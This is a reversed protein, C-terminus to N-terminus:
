KPNGSKKDPFFTDFIREKSYLEEDAFRLTQISITADFHEIVNDYTFPAITFQVDLFSSMSGMIMGNSRRGQGRGGLSAGAYKYFYDKNRKYKPPLGKNEDERYWSERTKHNECCYAKRGTIM